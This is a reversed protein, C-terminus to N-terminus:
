LGEHGMKNVYSWYVCRKCVLKFLTVASRTLFKNATCSWTVECRFFHSIFIAQADEFRASLSSCGFKTHANMVIPQLRARCVCNVRMLLKPLANSWAVCLM